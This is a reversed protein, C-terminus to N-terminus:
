INIKSRIVRVWVLLLCPPILCDSANRPDASHCGGVLHSQRPASRSVSDGPHTPTLVQPDSARLDTERTNPPGGNDVDVNADIANADITADHWYSTHQLAGEWSFSFHMHDRHPNSGSYPSWGAKARYARWIQRNWIIYMLGLRRANAHPTGNQDTKLLWEILADAAPHPYSVRWDWARGEKHESQGGLTCERLSGADGTCPYTELVLDRFAAVGPQIQKLCLQQGDYEAYPDAFSLLHKDPPVHNTGCTTAQQISKITEASCPDFREPEDSDGICANSLLATCILAQRWALSKRLPSGQRASVFRGFRKFVTHSM